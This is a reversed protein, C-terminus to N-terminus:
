KSDGSPQGTRSAPRGRPDGPALGAFLESARRARAEDGAARSAIALGLWPSALRADCREIAGDFRAQAAASTGSRLEWVGLNVWAFPLRPDLRTAEELAAKGGTVDGARCRAVGLTNWALTYGTGHRVATEAAEVAEADRKLLLRAVALANWGEANEPASRTSLLGDSEAGTLDGAGIKAMARYAYAAGPDGAQRVVADFDEIAHPADGLDMWALGRLRLAETAHETRAILESCDHIAGQHDGRLRRVDARLELVKADRSALELARTLDADAEALEGAYRWAAARSVWSGPDLPAAEIRLSLARLEERADRHGDRPLGIGLWSEVYAPVMWDAGSLPDPLVGHTPRPPPRPAGQAWPLAARRPDPAPLFSLVEARFQPDRDLGRAAAVSRLAEEAEGGGVPASSLLALARGAPVQWEPAHQLALHRALAPVSRAVLGTHGLAECLLQALRQRGRSVFRDQARRFRVAEDLAALDSESVARDRAAALEDSVSDLARAITDITDPDADRVLRLVFTLDSTFGAPGARSMQEITAAISTRRREVADRRAEAQGEARSTLVRQVGIGLLGVLVAALIRRQKRRRREGQEIWRQHEAEDLRASALRCEARAAEVEPHAAALTPVSELIGLARTVARRAEEPALAPVRGLTIRAESILRLGERDADSLARWRRIGDALAEVSAPRDSRDLSLAARCLEALPRPITGDLDTASRPPRTGVRELYEGRTTFPHPLQGTLIEFLMAGLSYVESQEDVRDMRGTAAEPSLYGATGLVTGLQTMRPDAGGDDDARTAAPPPDAADTQGRWTALGWDVVFVVGYDGLVVNEPKLDRHLIGKAHAYAVTDCVRLFADLLGVREEFRKGHLAAIESALTRRDRAVLRMAYYPTGDLSTGVEYVPPVGPHELAATLRAERRFRAQTARVRDTPGGPGDPTALPLTKLAVDRGLAPDHARLVIGMGGRDLFAVHDYRSRFAPANGRRLGGGDRAAALAAITKAAALAARLSPGLHPHAAVLAEPDVDVGARLAEVYGEVVTALDPRTM